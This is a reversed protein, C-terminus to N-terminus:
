GEIERGVSWALLRDIQDAQRDTQGQDIQDMWGDMWGDMWEDMWGDMWGDM